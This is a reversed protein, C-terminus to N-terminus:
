FFDFLVCIFWSSKDLSDALDTLGAKDLRVSFELVFPKNLRKKESQLSILNKKESRPKMVILINNFLIMTCPVFGKKKHFRTIEGLKM